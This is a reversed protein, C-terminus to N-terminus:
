EDSYPVLQEYVETVRKYETELKRKMEKLLDSERSKGNQLLDCYADFVVLGNLVVAGIAPFGNLHVAPSSLLPFTRIPLSELRSFSNLHTFIKSKNSIPLLGQHKMRIWWKEAASSMSFSKIKELLAEDKILTSDVRTNSLLIAMFIQTSINTSALNGVVNQYIDGKTYRATHPEQILRVIRGDIGHPFLNQVTKDFDYMKQLFRQIEMLNEADKRFEKLIDEMMYSTKTIDILSCVFSVCGGAAGLYLLTSSQSYEFHNLVVSGITGLVDMASLGIKAKCLLLKDRDLADAMKKIKKILQRRESAWKEFRVAVSRFQYSYLSNLDEIEKNQKVLKPYDAYIENNLEEFSKSFEKVTKLSALVNEIDFTPDDFTRNEKVSFKEKKKFSRDM